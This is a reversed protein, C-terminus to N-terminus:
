AEGGKERRFKDFYLVTSTLILAVIFLTVAISSGYGMRFHNFASKYMYTAMLETTSNPGGGTMVYILDFYKLSGILSLIAGTRITPRLLPLTIHRFTSWGAAGDIAAAEYIEEPIGTLAARFLIMYFPTFQWSITAIVAGLATREDGLWGRTLSQLGLGRLLENLIGFNPDYFFNWLIGIAVTSMLLPMFYVTRFLKVGWIPQVLFLALLLALPLQTAISAVVLIVNNQLSQWFVADQLLRAFNGLGVYTFQPSIGSWSFLSYYGSIFIPVVVFGAYVALAPALFGAVMLGHRLSTNRSRRNM